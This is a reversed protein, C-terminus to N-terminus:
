LRNYTFKGVFTEALVAAPITESATLETGANDGATQIIQIKDTSPVYRLAFGGSSPLSGTSTITAEGNIIAQLFNADDVSAARVLAAVGAAIGGPNYYGLSFAIQLYFSITNSDITPQATLQALTVVSINSLPM